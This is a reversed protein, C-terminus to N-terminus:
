AAGFSAWPLGSIVVDVDPMGEHYLLSRLCAANENLIKVGPFKKKFSDYMKSNLEVAMFEADPNMEKLIHGTIAGTGPGLEVIRNATKLGIESIIAQALKGSSPM